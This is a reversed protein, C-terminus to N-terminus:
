LTSQNDWLMEHTLCTPTCQAPQELLLASILLYPSISDNVSIHSVSSTEKSLGCFRQVGKPPVLYELVGDDPLKIQQQSWRYHTFSCSAAAFASRRSIRSPLMLLIGRHVPLLPGLFPGGPCSSIHFICEPFEDVLLSMSCLLQRGWPLFWAACGWGLPQGHFALLSASALTTVTFPQLLQPPWHSSITTVAASIAFDIM